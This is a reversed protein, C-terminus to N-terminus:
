QFLRLTRLHVFPISLASCSYYLINFGLHIMWGKDVKLYPFNRIVQARQECLCFDLDCCILIGEMLGKHSM